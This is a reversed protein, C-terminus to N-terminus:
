SLTFYYSEIKNLVSFKKYFSKKKSCFTTLSRNVSSILLLILRAQEAYERKCNQDRRSINHHVFPLTLWATTREIKSLQQSVHGTRSASSLINSNRSLLLLRRMRCTLRLFQTGDTSRRRQRQRVLMMASSTQVHWVHAVVILASRSSIDPSRTKPWARQLM